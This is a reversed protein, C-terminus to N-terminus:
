GRVMGALDVAALPVELFHLDFGHVANAAGLFQRDYIRTGYIGIRIDPTM